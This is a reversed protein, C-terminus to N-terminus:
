SILLSDISAQLTINNQRLLLSYLWGLSILGIMDHVMIMLHTVSLDVKYCSGTKHFVMPVISIHLAITYLVKGM